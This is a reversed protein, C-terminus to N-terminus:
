ELLPKTVVIVAYKPSRGLVFANPGEWAKMVALRPKPMGSLACLRDMAGHLMPQDGANVEGVGVARVSVQGAGLGPVDRGLAAFLSLWLGWAGIAVVLAAVAAVFVLVLYVMVLIMRVTLGRDRVYRTTERENGRPM